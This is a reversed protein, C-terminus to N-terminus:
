RFRCRIQIPPAEHGAHVVPALRNEVDHGFASLQLLDGSLELDADAPLSAVLGAASEAQLRKLANVEAQLADLESGIQRQSNAKVRKM